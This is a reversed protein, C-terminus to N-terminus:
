RGSRPEVDFEALVCTAINRAAAEPWGLQVLLRGTPGSGAVALQTRLAATVVNVLKDVETQARKSWRGAEDVEAGAVERARAILEERTM